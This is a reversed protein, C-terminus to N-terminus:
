NTLMLVLLTSITSADSASPEGRWLTAITYIAVDRGPTEVAHRSPSDCDLVPGLFFTASINSPEGGCRYALQRGGQFPFGDKSPPPLPRLSVEAGAVDQGRQGDWSPQASVAGKPAM